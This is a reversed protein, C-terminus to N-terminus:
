ASLSLLSYLLLIQLPLRGHKHVAVDSLFTYLWGPIKNSGAGSKFRDLSSLVVSVEDCVGFRLFNVIQKVIFIVRKAESRARAKVSAAGRSFRSVTCPKSM